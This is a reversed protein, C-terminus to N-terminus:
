KGFPNFSAKPKVPEEIKALEEIIEAEKAAVVLKEQEDTNKFPNVLPSTTKVAGDVAAKAKVHALITGASMLKEADAPTMGMAVLGAIVKDRKTLKATRDKIANIANSGVEDVNLSREFGSPKGAAKQKKTREKEEDDAATLRARAEFAIRSLEEIHARLVLVDMDKVLVKEHAFLKAFLEEKPTMTAKRALLVQIRQVVLHENGEYCMSARHGDETFYILSLAKTGM